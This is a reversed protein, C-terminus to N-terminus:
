FLFFAATVTLIAQVKTAVDNFANSETLNIYLVLSTYGYYPGFEVLEVEFRERSENKPRGAMVKFLYVLKTFNDTTKPDYQKRSNQRYWLRYIYLGTFSSM